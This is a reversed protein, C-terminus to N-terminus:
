LGLFQFTLNFVIKSNMINIRNNYLKMFSNMDKILDTKSNNFHNNILNIKYYILRMFLFLIVFLFVEFFSM